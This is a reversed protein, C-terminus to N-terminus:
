RTIANAECSAIGGQLDTYSAGPSERCYINRISSWTPGLDDAVTELLGDKTSRAARIASGLETLWAFSKQAMTWNDFCQPSKADIVCKVVATSATEDIAPLSVGHVNAFTYLNGIGTGANKWLLDEDHNAADGAGALSSAPRGSDAIKIAVAQKPPISNIKGVIENLLREKLHISALRSGLNYGLTNSPDGGQRFTEAKQAFGVVTGNEDYATAYLGLTTDTYPLNTQESTTTTTTVQGQYTYNWTSGYSDIVTGSGSTPSTNTSTQTRYVPYLGNFASSQTALVILYKQSSKPMIGSSQEFCIQPFKRRAQEFWKASVNPLRYQLAGSGAVAFTISKPCADLPSQAAAIVSLSLVILAGIIRRM